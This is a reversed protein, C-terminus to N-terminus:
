IHFVEHLKKQNPLTGMISVANGRQIRIGINQFLWSTQRKDGTIKAQRSGIEKIFELSLQGWSGMTETAIPIVKYKTPLTMGPSHERQRKAPFGMDALSM